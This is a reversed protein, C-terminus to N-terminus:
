NHVWRFVDDSCSKLLMAYYKKNYAYFSNDMQKKIQTMLLRNFQKEHKGLSTSNLIFNVTTKFLLLEYLCYQSCYITYLM